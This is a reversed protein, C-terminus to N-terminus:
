FDPSIAALAAFTEMPILKGKDILKHCAPWALTGAGVLFAGFEGLLKQLGCNRGSAAVCCCKSEKDSSLVEDALYTDFSIVSDSAEAIEHLRLCMHLIGKRLICFTTEIM